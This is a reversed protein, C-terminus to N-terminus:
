WVVLVKDLPHAPEKEFLTSVAEVHHLGWSCKEGMFDANGLGYSARKLM